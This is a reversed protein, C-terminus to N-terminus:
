MWGWLHPELVHKEVLPDKVLWLWEIARKVTRSICWPCECRQVEIKQEDVLISQVNWDVYVFGVELMHSYFVCVYYNHFCDGPFM